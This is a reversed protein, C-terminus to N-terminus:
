QAGLIPWVRQYCHLLWGGHGLYPLASSHTFHSHVITLRTIVYNCRSPDPFAEWFFIVHIFGSAYVPVLVPLLSMANQTEDFAHLIQLFQLYNVLQHVHNQLLPSLSLRLLLCSWIMFYKKGLQTNPMLGLTVPFAQQINSLLTVNPARGWGTSHSRSTDIKEVLM